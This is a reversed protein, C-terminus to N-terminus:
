VEMFEPFHVKLYAIQYDQIAEVIVNGKCTTYPAFSRLADFIRDAKSKSFGNRKANFIFQLKEKEIETYNKEKLLNLILDSKGLSYGAVMSLIEIIQENYVIIGYTEKLIDKLCKHLYKILHSKNAYDIMKKTWENLRLNLIAYISTLHSISKLNMKKLLSSENKMYSLTASDDEPINTINFAADKKIINKLAKEITSNERPFRLGISLLGLCKFDNIAYQSAKKDSRGIRLPINKISSEPFLIFRKDDEEFYFAQNIMQIKPIISLLRDIKKDKKLGIFAPVTNFAEQLTNYRKRKSNFIALIREREANDNKYYINVLDRFYHYGNGMSYACAPFYSIISDPGNIKEICKKINDKSKTSAFEGEFGAIDLKEISLFHEFVLNYKVPDIGTIGLAYAIISNIIPGRGVGFSFYKEKVTKLCNLILLYFNAYKKEKIIKLEHEARKKADEINERYRLELGKMALHRLYSDSDAFKSPISVAPFHPGSYNFVDVHCRQAIQLTNSIADPYSAFLEAMEQGTKFYNEGNKLCVEIEKNPNYNSLMLHASHVEADDPELYFVNNTAVMPIKAAKSIDLTILNIQKEFDYGHDQLELFFNNKGFMDRTRAAVEEAAGFDGQLIYSAIEGDPGGSLCILGKTYKQLINMDLLPKEYYPKMYSLSSLKVLNFYGENDAALLVLSYMSKRHEFNFESGIIPHIGYDLCLKYFEPVGYMGSDTLAAYKLNLAATRFVIEQISAIGESYYSGLSNYSDKQCL